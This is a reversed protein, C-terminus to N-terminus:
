SPSVAVSMKKTPFSVAHLGMSLTMAATIQEYEAESRIWTAIPSPPNTKSGAMSRSRSNRISSYTMFAGPTRAIASTGPNKSRVPKGSRSVWLGHSGSASLQTVPPRHLASVQM